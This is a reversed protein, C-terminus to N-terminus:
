AQKGKFRTPAKRPLAGRGGQLRRHRAAAIERDAIRTAQGLTQYRAERLQRKMIRVSRPSTSAAMEQSRQLVADLFGEAPLLNALGM